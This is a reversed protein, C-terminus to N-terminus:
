RNAGKFVHLEIIDCQVEMRNQDSMINAQYMPPKFMKVHRLMEFEYGWPLGASLLAVLSSFLALHSREWYENVVKASYDEIMRDLSTRPRPLTNYEM